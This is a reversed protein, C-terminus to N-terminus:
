ESVFENNSLDIGYYGSIEPLGYKLAITHLEKRFYDWAEGAFGGREIGHSVSLAIAPTNRAQNYKKKITEAEETSCFIGTRKM